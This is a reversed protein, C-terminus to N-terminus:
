HTLKYPYLDERSKSVNSSINFYNRNWLKERSYKAYLIGATIVSPELGCDLQETGFTLFITGLLYYIFYIKIHFITAFVEFWERM